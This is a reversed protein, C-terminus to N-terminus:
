AGRGTGAPRSAKHQLSAVPSAGSCHIYLVAHQSRQLLLPLLLAPLLRVEFAVHSAHLEPSEEADQWLMSSTDDSVEAM